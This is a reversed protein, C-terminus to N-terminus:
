QLQSYDYLLTDVASRWTSPAETFLTTLSVAKAGIDLRQKMSAADIIGNSGIVDFTAGAEEKAQLLWQTQKEAANALGPGSQGGAGNPVQLIHEGAANLPVGGPFTNFASVADVGIDGLLRALNAADAQERFPSIRVLLSGIALENASIDHIESLTAGLLEPHHSLLEHRGGDETVVNPCSANLEVADLEEIGARSLIGFMNIVEDAPDDSVPALNLIFPKGADHAIRIMDPLDKALAEIGQNPMGM